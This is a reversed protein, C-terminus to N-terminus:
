PKDHISATRVSRARTVAMAALRDLCEITTEATGVLGGKTVMPLGAWPGAVVEGAVALPVVEDEVELGQGSLEDLVAATIDGGTTYLGDVPTTQLVKRTIQGLAASLADGEGPGLTRLDTTDLVTALLVIEGPGASALEEIVASVTADVDPVASDPLTTARVIRCRREGILRQLQIRTLETASGSVAFLPRIGSDGVLGLAKAMALAGPGPDVTIWQVGEGAKAAADAVQELHDVTLADVVIVDIDDSLLEVLAAHLEEGSGTVVRLPLAAVRLGTGRSLVVTIESTDVPTRADHALETHELRRGGLLQHGEVTVRDAAPHAALCLAVVRRNTLERVTELMAEVAVGVNGRLTTDIRTSLLEVPWGARVADAVVVRVEDPPSHRSDTTVVITDFRPHFASIAEWRETRGLTVARMGTRAFGAACANAGTLDDAVVLVRAM